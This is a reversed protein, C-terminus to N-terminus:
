KLDKIEEEVLVVTMGDGGGHVVNVVRVFKCGFLSVAVQCGKGTFKGAEGPIGIEGDEGVIISSMTDMNWGM